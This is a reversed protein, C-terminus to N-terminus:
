QQGSEMEAGSEKMHDTTHCEARNVTPWEGDGDGREMHDTTHYEARNRNM